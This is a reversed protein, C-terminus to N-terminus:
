PIKLTEIVVDFQACYRDFDAARARGFFLALTHTRDALAGTVLDFRPRDFGPFLFADWIVQGIGVDPSLDPNLDRTIM